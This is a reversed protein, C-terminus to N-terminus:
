PTHIFVHLGADTWYKCPPNRVGVEYLPLELPMMDFEAVM